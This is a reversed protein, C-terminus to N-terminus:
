KKPNFNFVRMKASKSRPNSDQEKQTAKIPKKTIIKGLSNNNSCECRLAMPPCICNKSWESFTRKVMRDELSHFSIIAIKCQSKLNLEISKLLQMLEGLEDNVEIRLAQFVLTATTIHRNKRPKDGVIKCLQKPTTIKSKKRQICIKQAIQKAEPIQAYDRFLTALEDETYSNIIDEATTQQNTDMRMDLTESNKSFGRSKDDLQLSSVGIDALIGVIPLNKAYEIATKFSQNVLELRNQFKALKKSSYNIAFLDKDFGILKINPNQELIAESHGGYGLTCDLFYGDNLKLFVEKVENLLVPIHLTQM